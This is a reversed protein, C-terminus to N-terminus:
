PRGLYDTMVHVHINEGTHCNPLLVSHRAYIPSCNEACVFRTDPFGCTAWVYEHLGGCTSAFLTMSAHYKIRPHRTPIVLRPTTRNPRTSKTSAAHALRSSGHRIALWCVIRASKINSRHSSDVADGFKQKKKAPKEQAHAKRSVEQPYGVEM